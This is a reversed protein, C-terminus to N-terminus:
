VMEPQEPVPMNIMNIIQDPIEILIISIVM